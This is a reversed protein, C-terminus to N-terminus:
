KREMREANEREEWPEMGKEEGETEREAMKGVKIDLWVSEGKM